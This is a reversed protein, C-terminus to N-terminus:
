ITNTNKRSERYAYAIAYALFPLELVSDCWYEFSAGRVMWYISRSCIIFAAVMITIAGVASMGSVRRRMLYWGLICLAAVAIDGVAGRVFWRM